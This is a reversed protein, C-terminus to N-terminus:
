PGIFAIYGFISMVFLIFLAANSLAILFGKCIGIPGKDPHEIRMGYIISIVLLASIASIYTSYPIAGPPYILQRETSGHVFGPVKVTEFKYSLLSGILFFAFVIFWSLFSVGYATFYSLKFRMILRTLVQLVFASFIGFIAALIVYLILNVIISFISFATIFIDFASM